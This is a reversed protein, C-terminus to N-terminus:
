LAPGFAEQGDHHEQQRRAPVQRGLLDAGRDAAVRLGLLRELPHELAVLLLQALEADGQLGALAAREVVLDAVPDSIWSAGSSAAISPM